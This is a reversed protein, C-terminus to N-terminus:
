MGSGTATDTKREYESLYEVLADALDGLRRQQSGPQVHLACRGPNTSYGMEVLVAPRRATNLVM